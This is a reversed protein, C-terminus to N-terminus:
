TSSTPKQSSSTDPEILTIQCTVREKFITEVNEKILTKLALETIELKAPDTKHDRYFKIIEELLENEPIKRSKAEISLWELTPVFLTTHIGRKM